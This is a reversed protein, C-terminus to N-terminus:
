IMNESCPKREQRQHLDHGDSQHGLMRELGLKLIIVPNAPQIMYENCAFVVFNHTVKRSPRCHFRRSKDDRLSHDKAESASVGVVLTTCFQQVGGRASNGKM